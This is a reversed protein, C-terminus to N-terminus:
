TVRGRCSGSRKTWMTRENLVKSILGAVLLKLREVERAAARREEGLDAAFLRVVPALVARGLALLATAFFTPARLGELAFTETLLLDRFFIATLFFTATLFDAALDDGFFTLLFATDRFGIAFFGLKGFCRFDRAGLTL